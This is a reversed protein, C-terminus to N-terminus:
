ATLSGPMPKGIVASEEFVPIDTVLRYDLGESFTRATPTRRVCTLCLPQARPFAICNLTRRNDIASARYCRHCPEGSGVLCQPLSHLLQVRLPHCCHRICQTVQLRCSHSLARHKLSHAGRVPERIASRSSPGGTTMRPPSPQAVCLETPLPSAPRPKCARVTPPM